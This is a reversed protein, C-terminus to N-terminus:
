KNERWWGKLGVAALVAILATEARLILPGLNVATVYPQNLLYTVEEESFGGEPGVLVAVASSDSVADLATDINQAQAREICFILKKDQPWSKLYSKLDMLDDIVMVTERECQEAAEVAQAAMRERNIRHVVTRACLVPTFRAAGLESAKEVMMEFAEKKVPSALVHIDPTARQATLPKVLEFSCSKKDIQAIVSHWTGNHGNFVRVDDGASKRLVNRLYHAQADSFSIIYGAAYEQSPVYLRPANKYSDQTM